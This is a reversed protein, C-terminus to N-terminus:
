EGVLPTPRTLSLGALSLSAKHSRLGRNLLLLTIPGKQATRVYVGLPRFLAPHYAPAIVPRESGPPDLRHIGASVVLRGGAM